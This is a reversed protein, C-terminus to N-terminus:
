KLRNIRAAKSSGQITGVAMLLRAQSISKSLTRLGMEQTRLLQPTIWDFMLKKPSRQFAMAETQTALMQRPRGKKAMEMRAPNCATEGSSCSAAANSPALAKWRKRATVSGVIRLMRSIVVRKEIIKVKESKWSM